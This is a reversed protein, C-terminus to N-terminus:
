RGLRLSGSAVMGVLEKDAELFDYKPLAPIATWEFREFALNQLHASADIEAQFFILVLETESERYRHRTRFIEKGITADVGLEERLERALAEVPTEGPDIKGGPFEWRLGHSDDRRRQCVLLKADRVILAAVVTIM